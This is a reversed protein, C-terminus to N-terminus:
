NTAMAVLRFLLKQLFILTKRTFLSWYLLDAEAIQQINCKHKSSLQGFLHSELQKVFYVSKSLFNNQDIQIIILLTIFSKIENDSIVNLNAFANFIKM